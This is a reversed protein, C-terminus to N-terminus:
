GREPSDVNERKALEVVIMVIAERLAANDINYFARHLRLGQHVTTRDDGTGELPPPKGNPSAGCSTRKDRSRALLVEDMLNLNGACVGSRLSKVAHSAALVLKARFRSFLNSRLM